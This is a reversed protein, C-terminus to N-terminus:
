GHGRGFYGAVLSDSGAGYWPFGCIVVINPTIHYKSIIGLKNIRRNRKLEDARRIEIFYELLVGRPARKADEWPGIDPESWPVRGFLDGPHTDSYIYLAEAM